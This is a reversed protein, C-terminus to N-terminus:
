PSLSDLDLSASLLLAPAARDDADTVLWLQLRGDAVTAAIGEAKCRLSLPWLGRLRGDAAVVGVASGGCPGDAYNDDTAEAAASFVWGGDPLAAGDTFCLPVGDLDGLAYRTGAMPAPAPGGRLWALVASWDFRILENVPDAGSGRQLLCLCGAAVFAGEINLKAHRAHLAAYLPAFDVQQARRQLEGAADLALLVARERQPRSGSGLALLAGHPHGDFPPLLALAELDPKAAKRAKPDDPLEGEFLAHLTGAGSADFEGLQHEDDAVVYLRAGLRVLGSAASVHRPGAADAVSLTALVQPNLM